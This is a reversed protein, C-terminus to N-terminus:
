KTQTDEKKSILITFGTYENLWGSSLITIRDKEQNVTIEYLKPNDFVKYEKVILGDLCQLEFTIGDCPTM